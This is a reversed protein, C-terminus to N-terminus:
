YGHIEGEYPTANFNPPFRHDCIHLINPFTHPTDFKHFYQSDSDLQLSPLVEFLLIFLQSIWIENHMNWGCNLFRFEPYKEKFALRGEKCFAWQERANEVLDKMTRPSQNPPYSIAQISILNAGCGTEDLKALKRSKGILYFVKIFFNKKLVSFM